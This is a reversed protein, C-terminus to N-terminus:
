LVEGRLEEGLSIVKDILFNQFDRSCDDYGKTIHLHEELLTGCVCKTGVEFARLSIYISDAIVSGYVNSGLDAVVHVPAEITYGLSALMERSRRLMSEQVRTLTVSPPVLLDPRIRKVALRAYPGLRARHTKYCAALTEKFAQTASELLYTNFDLLHEFSNKPALLVNAILERNECQFLAKTILMKVSYEGAYTRDETLGLKSKVNYRYVANELTGVKIGKYFLTGDEGPHIDVEDQEALPMSALIFEHRNKHISELGVTSIVTRGPTAGAAEGGEIVDGGEDISNCYLERYAMWLEWNKGLELTFPLAVDGARTHMWVVQFEKDRLVTSKVSFNIETTGSFIQLKCNHRLMVAIAYKLGTGFYGIPSKTNPKVNAGMLQILRPDIEGPNTFCIM